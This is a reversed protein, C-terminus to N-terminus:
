QGPSFDVFTLKGAVFKAPKSETEAGDLRIVRGDGPPVVVAGAESAFTGVAIGDVEVRYRMGDSEDSRVVLVSGKAVPIILGAKDGDPLVAVGNLVGVRNDLTRAVVTYSGPLLLQYYFGTDLPSWGEATVRGKATRFITFRANIIKGSAPDQATGKISGSRTMVIELGSAGATIVGLASVPLWGRFPTEDWEEITMSDMTVPDVDLGPWVTHPGPALPGIRFHGKADSEARVRGSGDEMTVSISLGPIPQGDESVYRGEIYLGAHALLVLPGDFPFDVRTGYPAFSSPVVGARPGVFWLGPAVAEFRFRGLADTGVMRKNSGFDGFYTSSTVSSAPALQVLVGGVPSGTEDVLIGLLPQPPGVTWELDREEAYGLLLASKPLVLTGTKEDLVEMSLQVEAPLGRLEFSGDPGTRAKWTYTEVKSGYSGGHTLSEGSTSAAIWLGPIPNRERDRLVGRLRAARAARVVLPRRADQRTDTLLLIVPGYGSAYIRASAVSQLSGVGVEFRGTDRTVAEFTGSIEWEIGETWPDGELSEQLTTWTTTSSEGEHSARDTWVQAGAIPLGTKSDVLKGFFPLLPGEVLEVRVKRFADKEFAAIRVLSSQHGSARGDVFATYDEGPKVAFRVSGTDDTALIDGVTGKSSNVVRFSAPGKPFGLAVPTEAIPKGTEEDVIQLLLVEDTAGESPEQHGNSAYAGLLLVAYALILM